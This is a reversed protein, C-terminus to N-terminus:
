PGRTKELTGTRRATRICVFTANSLFVSVLYWAAVMRRQPQQFLFCNLTQWLGVVRGFAWEVAVREKSWAGNVREQVKGPINRGSLLFSSIMYGQDGYVFYPEGTKEDKFENEIVMKVRGIVVMGMDNHRASVPGFLRIILGDPSLVGEYDFGHYCHHGDYLAKQLASLGWSRNTRRATGDIFGFVNLFEDEEMSLSTCIARRWRSLNARIRKM